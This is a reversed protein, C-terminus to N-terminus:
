VIAEYLMRTAVLVLLIAFLKRLVQGDFRHAVAAGVPTMIVAFLSIFAFAILNVYGLSFPPLGEQGLGWYIAFLTGPFGIALGFGASTGIAQHIPRGCLAMLTVGFTGGGIGMLASLIGVSTGLGARYPERPMDEAIKWNPRGFFLQAACVLGLLGFTLMLGDRTLFAAVSMGVGAGIVIWPGWTRLIAWDVVGRKHHSWVSRISTLTITALSTSVAIHMAWEQYGLVTFLYVLTPVIIAGGGIGFLGAAFGAVVGALALAILPTWYSVILDIMIKRVPQM